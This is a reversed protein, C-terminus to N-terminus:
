VSIILGVGSVLVVVTYEMSEVGYKCLAGIYLVECIEVGYYHGCM